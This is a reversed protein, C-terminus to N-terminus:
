KGHPVWLYDVESEQKGFFSVCQSMHVILWLLTYAPIQASSSHWMLVALMWTGLRGKLGSRGTLMLLLKNSSGFACEADRDRWIYHESVLGWLRELSLVLWVVESLKRSWADKLCRKKGGCTVRSNLLLIPSLSLLCMLQRNLTLCNAHLKM